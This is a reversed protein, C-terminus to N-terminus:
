CLVLCTRKREVQTEIIGHRLVRVDCFRRAARYCNVKARMPVCVCVCVCVTERQVLCRGHYGRPSRKCDDTAKLRRMSSDAEHQTDPLLM